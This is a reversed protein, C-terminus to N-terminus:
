AAKNLPKESTQCNEEDEVRPGVNFFNGTRSYEKLLLKTIALRIQGLSLHEKRERWPEELKPLLSQLEPTLEVLRLLIQSTVSLMAFRRVGLETRGRYHGLGGDCKLDEYGQEVAHRAAYFYLTEEATAERETDLLYFPKKGIGVVIVVSVPARVGRWYCVIKRLRVKQKSGYVVMEQEAAFKEPHAARHRLSIKQGYKKSRGREGRKRKIEKAIEYVRADARLRTVVRRQSAVQTNIWDKSASTGIGM